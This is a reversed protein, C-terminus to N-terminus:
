KLDVTSISPIIDDLVDLVIGATDLSTFMTIGSQVASRRVLTGHDYHIGSLVARTNIIYSVYGSKISALMEDPNRKITRIGRKNLFDATGETAEINFGLDFFRKVLPFAEAKDEDALTVAVTGYDKMRVGSAQLAKYMARKLSADYGIAEGTSKMEPSLFADMGTLKEFSFAPAKVYWRSKKEPRMDSIGQDKCHDAEKVTKSMM